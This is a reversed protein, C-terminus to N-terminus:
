GRRSVEAREDDRGGGGVERPLVAPFLAMEVQSLPSAEINRKCLWIASHFNHFILPTSGIREPRNGSHLTM